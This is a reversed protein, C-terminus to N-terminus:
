LDKRISQQIWTVAPHRFISVPPRDTLRVAHGAREPSRRSQRQRCEDTARLLVSSQISGNPERMAGVAARSDNWRRLLEPSPALGSTQGLPLNDLLELHAGRTSV